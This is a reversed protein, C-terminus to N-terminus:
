RILSFIYKQANRGLKKAQQVLSKLRNGSIDKGDEPKDNMPDHIFPM